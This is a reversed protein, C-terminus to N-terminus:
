ATEKWGVIQTPNVGLVRALRVVMGLSPANEGSEYKVIQPRSVGVQASLKEASLYREKRLARLKSGLEPSWGRDPSLSLRNDM